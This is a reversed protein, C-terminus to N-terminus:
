FVSIGTPTQRLRENNAEVRTISWQNARIGSLEKPVGLMSTEGGRNTKCNPIQDSHSAISVCDPLATKPM